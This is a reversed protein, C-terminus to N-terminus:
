DYHRKSIAFFEGGIYHYERDTDTRDIIKSYLGAQSYTLSPYLLRRIGEYM